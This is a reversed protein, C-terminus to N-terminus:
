RTGPELGPAGVVWDRFEGIRPSRGSLGRNAPKKSDRNRLDGDGSESIANRPARHRSVTTSEEEKVKWIVNLASQMEGFVGSATILLTVIGVVTALIGSPKGAASAVASQLVDATQKGMLGTFQGSIANQAAERGFVLGAIAVVILLVPAMSTVAYFAIAAGRSLASDEIFSLVTEKLIKWIESFM